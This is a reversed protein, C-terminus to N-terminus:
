TDELVTYLAIIRRGEIKDKNSRNVMTLIYPLIEEVEGVEKIQKIMPILDEESKLENICLLVKDGRKWTTNVSDKKTYWTIKDCIEATLNITGVELGLVTDIKNIDFQLRVLIELM